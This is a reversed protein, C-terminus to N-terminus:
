HCLPTSRNLNDPKYRIKRACFRKRDPLRQPVSGRWYDPAINEHSSLLYALNKQHLALRKRGCGHEMGQFELHTVAECGVVIRLRIKIRQFLPNMLESINVADSAEVSAAVLIM